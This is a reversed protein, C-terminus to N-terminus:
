AVAAQRSRRREAKIRRREKTSTGGWIGVMNQDLAFELCQERVPCEAICRAKTEDASGPPFFLEPNEDRCLAQGQWSMRQLTEDSIRM